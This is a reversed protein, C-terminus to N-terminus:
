PTSQFTADQLRTSVFEGGEEFAPDVSGTRTRMVTVSAECSAPEVPAEGEKPEPELLAGAAFTVSTADDGQVAQAVSQFCEGEITITTREDDDGAAFAIVIEATRAVAGSPLDADPESPLTVTSSPAGGDVSRKLAVKVPTDAAVVGDFFASYHPDNIDIIEPNKAMVRTDDGVTAELTDDGSLEVNTANSGSGGVNLNGGVRTGNDEVIARFTAYMGGTTVDESEVATCGSAIVLSGSLAATLHLMRTTIKQNMTKM